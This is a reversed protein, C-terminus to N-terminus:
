ELRNPGSCRCPCFDRVAGNARDIVGIRFMAFCLGRAQPLRSQLVFRKM